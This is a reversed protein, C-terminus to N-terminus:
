EFDFDGLTIHFRSAPDRLVELARPEASMRRVGVNIPRASGDDYFGADILVPELSHDQPLLCRLHNGGNAAIQRAVASLLAVGAAPAEPDVVLDLIAGEDEAQKFVVYGLAQGDEALSILTSARGARRDTFRWNMSGADRVRAVDFQVRARDWLADTRDDFQELTTVRLGANATGRELRRPWGGLRRRMAEFTVGLLHPLGAQRHAGLTARPGFSRVWTRARRVVNVDDELHRVAESQPPLDWRLFPARQSNQRNDDSFVLSALRKGRHDPHVALDVGRDFRFIEPGVHTLALWRLQVAVITDGDRVVTNPRPGVSPPGEMKWRLHDVAAVDIEVPPWVPFAARLLAVMEDADAATAHDIRPEAPSDDPPESRPDPM